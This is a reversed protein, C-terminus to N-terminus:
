IGVAAALATRPEAAGSLSGDPLVEILQAHGSLKPNANLEGVNHGRATLGEKWTAPAHPELAVPAMWGPTWTAFADPGMLVWRGAGLVEAPSQDCDLLRALLQLVVQPQADGGMTGLVARNRGDLTTVLAPSLTHPPRRGPAYHAPHTPDLSFGLGRNHLLIGTSGAVLLSGFGMANSQILSVALRDDATCLYTTDGGTTAPTVPTDGALLRRRLGDIRTPDLLEAVDAADSLEAPRSSGVARASEILWHAWDPDSPDSPLDLGQALAAAALILYGQSNPPVTWLRNGWAEVTAPEVWNAVPIALDEPSFLGKALRLLGDGFEGRYFAERGGTAIAELARASGPRHVTDGARLDGPIDSNGPSGAVDGAASALEASAAFGEAAFAHAASLVEPLDMVGLRQHLALWGDVCGPITVAAPHGLRPMQQYGEARLQEASAGSPAWGSANLCLPPGNGTGVLAFMDGGMGCTNPAVVALVAATAVAADVANGGRALLEAGAKSARRDISCVMGSDSTAAPVPNQM